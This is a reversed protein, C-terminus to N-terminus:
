TLYSMLSGFIKKDNLCCAYLGNAGAADLSYKSSIDFPASKPPM